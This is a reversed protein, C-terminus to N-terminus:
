HVAYVCIAERICYYRDIEKGANVGPVASSRTLRSLRTTHIYTHIYPRSDKSYSEVVPHPVHLEAPIPHSAM